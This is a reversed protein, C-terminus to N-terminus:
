SSAALEPRMRTAVCRQQSSADVTRVCGPLSADTNSSSTLAPASPSPPGSSVSGSAAGKAGLGARTFIGQFLTRGAAPGAGAARWLVSEGFQANQPLSSSPTDRVHLFHGAFNWWQQTMSRYPSSSSSRQGRQWGEVHAGEARKRGGASHGAAKKISISANQGIRPSTDMYVPSSWFSANKAVSTLLGGRYTIHSIHPQEDDDDDPRKGLVM